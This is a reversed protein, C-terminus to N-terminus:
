GRQCIPLVIMLRVVCNLSTMLSSNPVVPSRDHRIAVHLLKPTHTSTPADAAPSSLHFFYQRATKKKIRTCM